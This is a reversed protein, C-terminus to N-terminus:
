KANKIAKRFAKAFNKPILKVAMDAAKKEFNFIKPIKVRKAFFFLAKLGDNVRVFIGTPLVFPVAKLGRIKGARRNGKAKAAKDRLARPKKAKRIIEKKPKWFQTPIAQRHEGGGRSGGREHDELWDARSGLTGLLRSKRAFKAKFGYRNRPLWWQAGRSRLTFTEPLMENITSDQVEKLTDNITQSLAFPVQKATRRLSTQVGRANRLDVEFKM